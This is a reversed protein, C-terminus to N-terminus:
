DRNWNEEFKRVSREGEDKQKRWKETWTGTWMRTQTVEM